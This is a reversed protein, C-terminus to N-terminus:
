SRMYINSWLKLFGRTFIEDIIYLRPIDFLHITVSTACNQNFGWWTCFWKSIQIHYVSDVFKRLNRLIRKNCCNLKESRDVHLKQLFLMIKLDGGAITIFLSVITHYTHVICRVFPTHTITFSTYYHLLSAPRGGYLHCSCLMAHLSYIRM